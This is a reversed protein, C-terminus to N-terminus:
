KGIEFYLPTLPPISPIELGEAILKEAPSELKLGDASSLKENFVLAGGQAPLKPLAEKPFIVRVNEMSQTPHLNVVVLYSQGTAADARLFCYLWHGSATEGDLRGYAPNEANAESFPIFDGSRFAPENALNLLKSYFKRLDAQEISLGGGDFKKGNVWKTFEPM